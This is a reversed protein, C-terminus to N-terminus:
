GAPTEAKSRLTPDPRIRRFRVLFDSEPKLMRIERNRESVKTQFRFRRNFGVKLIDGGQPGREIREEKRNREGSGKALAGGRVRVGGGDDRAAPPGGQRRCDRGGCGAPRGESGHTAATNEEQPRGGSTVRQRKQAVM